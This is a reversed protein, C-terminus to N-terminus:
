AWEKKFLATFPTHMQLSPQCIPDYQVVILPHIPKAIIFFVIVHILQLKELFKTNTLLVHTQLCCKEKDPKSHVYIHPSPYKNVKRHSSPFLILPSPHEEFHKTYGWKLQTLLRCLKGALLHMNLPNTSVNRWPIYRMGPVFEKFIYNLSSWYSGIKVLIFKVFTTVKEKFLVLSFYLTTSFPIRFRNM